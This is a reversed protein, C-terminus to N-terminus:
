ERTKILLRVTTTMDMYYILNRVARFTDVAYQISKLLKSGKFLMESIHFDLILHMILM